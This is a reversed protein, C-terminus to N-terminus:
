LIKRFHEQPRSTELAYHLSGLFSYVLIHCPMGGGGAKATPLEWGFVASGSMNVTLTGILLHRRSGALYAIKPLM